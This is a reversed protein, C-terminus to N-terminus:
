RGPFARTASRSEVWNVVGSDGLYVAFATSQTEIVEELQGQWGHGAQLHKKDIWVTLGHKKAEPANEILEAIHLAAETDVGAHSLFLLSAMKEKKGRQCADHVFFKSFDLFLEEIYYV